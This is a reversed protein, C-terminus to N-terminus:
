GNKAGKRMTRVESVILMVLEGKNLERGVLSAAQSADLAALSESPHKAFWRGRSLVPRTSVFLAHEFQSDAADRTVYLAKGM